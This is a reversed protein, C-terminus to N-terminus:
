HVPSRQRGLEQIKGTEHTDYGGLAEIETRFPRSVMMDLFSAVGPHGGVYATPIVLDYREEQLPLFELGWQRAAARVGIGADAQGEAILRAVHLHSRATRDYGRVATAKVGLRRYIPAVHPLSPTDAPRNERADMASGAIPLALGAKIFRRRPLNRKRVM